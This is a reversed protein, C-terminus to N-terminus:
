LDLSKKKNTNLLLGITLRYNDVIRCYKVKDTLLCKSNKKIKNTIWLDDWIQLKFNEWICCYTSKM